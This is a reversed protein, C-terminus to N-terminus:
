TLFFRKKKLNWNNLIPKSRAQQRLKDTQSRESRWWLTSWLAFSILSGNWIKVDSNKTIKSICSRKTQQITFNISIKSDKKGCWCCKSPIATWLTKRRTGRSSLDPLAIFFTCFSWNKVRLQFQLLDKLFKSIKWGNLMIFRNYGKTRPFGCTRHLTNKFFKKALWLM